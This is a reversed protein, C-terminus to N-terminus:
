SYKQIIRQRVYRGGGWLLGFVILIGAATSIAGLKNNLAVYFNGLFYGIGMLIATWAFQGVLNLALYKKFPIKVLGATFLTVLAFGFGMTLKSIVLISNPYTHFIKEVRAINEETISVYKGYKRVFRHGLTRGIWYWLVDGFVDGLMLCLYLPTFYFFGTRVLLGSIMMLLPGEFIAVPVVIVYRYTLLLNTLFAIMDHIM